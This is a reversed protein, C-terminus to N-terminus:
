QKLTIIGNFYVYENRKLTTKYEGRTYFGGGSIITGCTDNIFLIVLGSRELCQRLHPYSPPVHYKFDVIVKMIKTENREKKTPM